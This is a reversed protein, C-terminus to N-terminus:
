QKKEVKLLVLRHFIGCAVGDFDARAECLIESSYTCFVLPGRSCNAKHCPSDRVGWDGQQGCLQARTGQASGMGCGWILLGPLLFIAVIMHSIGVPHEGFWIWDTWCHHNVEACASRTDKWTFAETVREHLCGRPYLMKLHATESQSLKGAVTM